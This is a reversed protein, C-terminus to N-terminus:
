SVRDLIGCIQSRVWDIVLKLLRLKTGTGLLNHRVHHVAVVQVVLNVVREKSIQKEVAMLIFKVLFSYVHCLLM